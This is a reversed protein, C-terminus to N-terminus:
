RSHLFLCGRHAHKVKGWTPGNPSPQLLDVFDGSKIPAKCKDTASGPVTKTKMDAEVCTRLVPAAFTGQVCM